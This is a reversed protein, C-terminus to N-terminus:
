LSVTLCFVFEYTVTMECIAKAGNRSDLDFNGISGLAELGDVLYSCSGFGASTVDAYSTWRTDCVTSPVNTGTPCGFTELLFISRKPTSFYKGIKNVEGYFKQIWEVEM